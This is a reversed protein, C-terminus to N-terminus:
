RRTTDESTRPMNRTTDTTAGPGISQGTDTNSPTTYTSDKNTSNGSNNDNCAMLGAIICGVILIRKM